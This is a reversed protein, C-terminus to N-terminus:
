HWRGDDPTAAPPGGPPLSAPDHTIRARVTFQVGRRTFSATLLTHRGHGPTIDLTSRLDTDWRRAWARAAKWAQEPTGTFEMAVTAAATRGTIRAPAPLWCAKGDGLTDAIVAALDGPDMPSPDSSTIGISTSM